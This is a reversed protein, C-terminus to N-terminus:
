TVELPHEKSSCVNYLLMLNIFTIKPELLRMNGSRTFDPDDTHTAACRHAAAILVISNEKKVIRM